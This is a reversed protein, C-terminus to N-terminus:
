FRDVFVLPPEGYYHLEGIQIAFAKAEPLTKFWRPNRLSVRFWGKSNTFYGYTKGTAKERATFIQRSTM